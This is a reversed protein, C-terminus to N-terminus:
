TMQIRAINTFTTRPFYLNRTNASNRLTSCSWTRFDYTVFKVYSNLEVEAVTLVFLPLVPRLSLSNMTLEASASDAAM